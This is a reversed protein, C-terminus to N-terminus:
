KKRPQRIALYIIPVTFLMSILYAPYQYRLAQLQTTFAIILSQIYPPVLLLLLSRDKQIFTYLLLSFSFLYLYIAPRWAIKGPDFRDYFNLTKVVLSRLAPLKPKQDIFQAYGQWEANVRLDQNKVYITELLVGDPQPIQWVFSSLCLFHKLTVIPARLTLRELLLAAYFLDNQVPQFNVGQYFFITADYCSYPWKNKLPYIKDLYAAEDPLIMTGAYVHAALPHILVVGIPQTNERDVNFIDYIPGEVIGILLLSVLLSRVVEKKVPYFILIVLATGLAVPFGNFRLLSVNAMTISFLLQNRLLFIWKGGTKIIKFLLLTLFLVSLSYLVDKWQTVEMIGNIPVVSIFFALVILLPTPVQLSKFTKLGVMTVISFVTIQFLSMAAPSFWLRSILWILITHYAPHWNNIHFRFVQDWQFISDYTSVGPYFMLLYIIGSVFPIFFFLVDTSIKKKNGAAEVYSKISFKDHLLRNM